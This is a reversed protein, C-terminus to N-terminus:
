VVMVRSPFNWHGIAMAPWKRVTANFATMIMEPGDTGFQTLTGQHLPADAGSKSHIANGNQFTAPDAAAVNDSDRFHVTAAILKTFMSASWSGAGTGDTVNTADVTTSGNPLMMMAQPKFGISPNFVAGTPSDLVGVWHDVANNYKLALYLGLSISTSALTFGNTDFSSVTVIGSTSSRAIQSTSVYSSTQTPTINDRSIANHSCQVISAGDWDAFGVAMFLGDAITDWSTGAGAHLGIIQDPKFGPATIAKTDDGTGTVFEYTGAYAQLHGGGLLRIVIQKGGSSDIPFVLSTSTWDIQVGDAVFTATGKWVYTGTPEIYGICNTNSILRKTNSPNALQVSSGMICGQRTGDAVGINTGAVSNSEMVFQAAKVTGFGPVTFTQRLPTVWVYDVSGTFAGGMPTLAFGTGDATVDETYIGAATRSTGTVTGCKVAVGNTTATEVVLYTRYTIGSVLPPTQSIDGTAATAVAKTGAITWGAGKTWVTDTTFGPNLIM